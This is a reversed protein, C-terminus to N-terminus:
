RSSATPMRTTMRIRAWGLELMCDCIESIVDYRRMLAQQDYCPKDQFDALDSIAKGDPSILFFECEVGSKLMYGKNAAVELLRKLTNRPAQEVLQGNMVLDGAVWAVEKKWPLQIFSEPDPIALMDADAPSMDLWCAFGAFGAGDKSMDSIAAAPVLKARMTGFLDVFSILFYKVGREQAIQSLDKEMRRIDSLQKDM